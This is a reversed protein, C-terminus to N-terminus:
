EGSGEGDDANIVSANAEIARQDATVSVGPANIIQITVGASKGASAIPHADDGLNELARIANVAAQKNDDQEVLSELRHIRRAKGSVRLVECQALYYARVDPKLLARYLSDPQLGVDKAAEDRKRGNWVMADVAAKVRRTMRVTKGPKTEIEVPTRSISVAQATALAQESM